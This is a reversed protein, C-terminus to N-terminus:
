GHSLLACGAMGLWFGSGIVLVNIAIKRLLKM